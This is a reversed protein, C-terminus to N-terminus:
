GPPLTWWGFTMSLHRRETSARRREMLFQARLLQILPASKPRDTGDTAGVHAVKGAVDLTLGYPYFEGHEKLMKEALPLAENMLDECESKSSAMATANFSTEEHPM